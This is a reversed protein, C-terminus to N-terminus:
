NKVLRTYAYNGAKIFPKEIIKYLIHSGILSVILVVSFMILGKEKAFAGGIYDSLIILAVVHFLYLSYSIDGLWHFNKQYGIPKVWEYSLCLFVIASAIIGFNDIGHDNFNGFYLCWLCIFISISITKYNIAKHLKVNNDIIYKHLEYIAMGVIFEIMLPSSLTSIIQAYPGSYNVGGAVNVTINGNFSFQIVMMFIILLLSCILTRYRWSIWMSLMFVGYFVIEYTLTWAVYIVSYGYKPAADNYNLHSFYLSKHFDDATIGPLLSVLLLLLIFYVPYIRFIRKTIFSYKSMNKQTSLSIIFGSIVFFIDVGISGKSFLVNGINNIDYTGNLFKRLHFFVVMLAAVGRLYQISNIM